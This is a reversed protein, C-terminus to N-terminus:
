LLLSTLISAGLQIILILISAVASTSKKEVDHVIEWSLRVDVFRNVIEIKDHDAM